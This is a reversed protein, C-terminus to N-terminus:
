ITPASSPPQAIQEELMALCQAVLAATDYETGDTARWVFDDSPRDIPRLVVEKVV